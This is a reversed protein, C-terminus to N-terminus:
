GALRADGRSSQGIAEDGRNPEETIRGHQLGMTMVDCDM